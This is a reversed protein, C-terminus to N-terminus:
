CDGIVLVGNLFCMMLKLLAEGSLLNVKCSFMVVQGPALRTCYLAHRALNILHSDPVLRRYKGNSQNRAVSGLYQLSAHTQALIFDIMGIATLDLALGCFNNFKAEFSSLINMAEFLLPPKLLGM